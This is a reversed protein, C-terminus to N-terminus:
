FHGTFIGIKTTLSTHRCSTSFCIEIGLNNKLFSSEQHGISTKRSSKKRKIDGHDDGMKQSCKQDQCDLSFKNESESKSVIETYSPHSAPM